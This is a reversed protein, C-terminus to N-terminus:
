TVTLAYILMVPGMVILLTLPTAILTTFGIMMLFSGAYLPNRIMRYPGVTTIETGKHLIGAAWSRLAVGLLALLGAGVAVPDRLDFLNGPQVGRYLDFTLMAAFLLISLPVRRRVIFQTTATFRGAESPTTIPQSSATRPLSSM